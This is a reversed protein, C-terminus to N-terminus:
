PSLNFYAFCFLAALAGLGLVVVLKRPQRRRAPDFPNQPELLLNLLAKGMGIESRKKIDARLMRAVHKPDTLPSPHMPKM